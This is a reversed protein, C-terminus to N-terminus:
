PQHEKHPSLAAALKLRARHIRVKVSALPINLVRATEEYSLGNVATLVLPDRLDAPLSELAHMAGGLELADDPAHASVAHDEKIPVDNRPQRMHDVALNRAIALLYAKGTETRIRDRGAWARLFTESAIDAALDPDRVLYRAFRAVDQAHAEYLAQFTINEM